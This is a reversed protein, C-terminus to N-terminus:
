YYNLFQEHHSEGSLSAGHFAKEVKGEVHGVQIYRALEVAAHQAAALPAACSGPNVKVKETMLYRQM